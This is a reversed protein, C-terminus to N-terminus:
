QVGGDILIFPKDNDDDDGDSFTLVESEAVTEGSDMLIKARLIHSAALDFGEDRLEKTPSVRSILDITSALLTFLVKSPSGYNYVEIGDSSASKYLSVFSCDRDNDIDNELKDVCARIHKLYELSEKDVM